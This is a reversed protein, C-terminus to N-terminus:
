LGGFGWIATIAKNPSPDNSEGITLAPLIRHNAKMQTVCKTSKQIDSFFVPHYYHLMEISANRQM